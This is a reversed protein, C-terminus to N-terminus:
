SSFCIWREWKVRCKVVLLVKVLLGFWKSTIFDVIFDVTSWYVDRTILNIIQFFSM